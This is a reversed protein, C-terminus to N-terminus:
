IWLLWSEMFKSTGFDLLCGRGIDLFRHQFSPIRTQHKSRAEDQSKETSRTNNTADCTYRPPLASRAMYLDEYLMTDKIQVELFSKHVFIYM